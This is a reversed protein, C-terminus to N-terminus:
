SDGKDVLTFNLFFAIHALYMELTRSVVGSIGMTQPHYSSSFNFSADNLHFLEGSHSQFAMFSSFM